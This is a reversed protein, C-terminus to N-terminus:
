SGNMTLWEGGGGVAVMVRSRQFRCSCNQKTVRKRAIMVTAKGNVNMKQIKMEILKRTPKKQVSISQMLLAQTTSSKRGCSCMKM